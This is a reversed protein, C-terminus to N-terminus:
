RKKWIIEGGTLEQVKNIIKREDLHLIEKDKMLMKGRVITDTVDSGNMVYIVHSILSNNQNIPYFHPKDLQVTILDAQMGEMIRGTKKELALTKAGQINAMDFIEPDSIIDLKDAKKESTFKDSLSALKLEEFMDLNNNSTPGDTAVSVCVGSDVMRKLPMAKGYALKMNSTPNHCVKCGKSAIKKIEKNTVWNAHVLLTKEDLWGLEDLYDIPTNKHHALTERFEQETESIHVRKLIDYKRAIDRVKILTERSCLYISHATSIPTIAEDNIFTQIVKEQIAIAEDADRAFLPKEMVPSDVFANIGSEKLARARAFSLHYFDAVTTTGFRICELAGLLSGYYVEEETLKKERGMIQPLWERLPLNDLYGRFLAMPLHTHTNIMGPLVLKKSCDVVDDDELGKGIKAIRSGEILIDVDRLITRKEDQTLVYACDKLLM